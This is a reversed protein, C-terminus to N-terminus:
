STDVDFNFILITTPRFITACKCVIYPLPVFHIICHLVFFLCITSLVCACLISRERQCRGEWKYLCCFPWSEKGMGLFREKVAIGWKSWGNMLGKHMWRRKYGMDYVKLNCVRSLALFLFIWTNSELQNIRTFYGKVSSLFCLFIWVTSKLQNIRTFYSSMAWYFLFIICTTSELPNIRIFAQSPTYIYM